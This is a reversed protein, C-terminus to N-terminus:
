IVAKVREDDSGRVMANEPSESDGPVAGASDLMDKPYM